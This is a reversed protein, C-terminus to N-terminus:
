TQMGWFLGKSTAATIDARRPTVNVRYGEEGLETLHPDISLAVCNELPTPAVVKLRRGVAPALMQALMEGRATATEDAAIITDPKIQFVGEGAVLKVPKPVIRDVVIPGM